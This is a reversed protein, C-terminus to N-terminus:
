RCALLGAEPRCEVKIPGQLSAAKRELGIVARTAWSREALGCWLAQVPMRDLSANLLAITGDKPDYWLTASM